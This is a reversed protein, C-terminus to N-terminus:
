RKWWPLMPPFPRDRNATLYVFSAVIVANRRVDDPVLREFTDMNSHHTRTDYDLWDQLFQFGPQRNTYFSAHDTGGGAGQSVVDLGLGRLARTWVRFTSDTETTFQASQDVMPGRIAGAGNDLNFYAALRVRDGPAVAHTSDGFHRVVYAASGLMGQEEGTWLALRVTRRLHVGAAKLIRMAEMMVAVNGGNDTAGTGYHFSDLHAGLMVVELTTDAGPLEALLNYASDNGGTFRNRVDAELTVGIGRALNRVIRGYHETSFVLVPLLARRSPDPSGQRDGDFGLFVVGGAGTGQGIMAVAGEALLFRPLEEDRFRREREFAASASDNRALDAATPVYRARTALPWSRTLLQQATLRTALPELPPPAIPPASDLLVFAGRLKGRYAALQARSRLDAAYVAPGRVLGKTGPTWAEVNVMIPFSSPEVARVQVLENTWGNGFPGWSERWSQTIDWTRLRQQIWDASQHLAPSNTLRGGFVDTLWGATEMVQSHQLGEARIAALAASDPAQAFTSTARALSLVLITM